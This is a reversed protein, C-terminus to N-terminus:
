GDTRLSGEKRFELKRQEFRSSNKYISFLSESQTKLNNIGQQLVVYYFRETKMITEVVGISPTNM